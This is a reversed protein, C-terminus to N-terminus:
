EKKGEKKEQEKVKEKEEKEKEKYDEDEKKSINHAEKSVTLDRSSKEYKSDM